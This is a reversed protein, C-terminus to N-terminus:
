RFAPGTRGTYFQVVIDGAGGSVSAVVLGELASRNSAYYETAQLCQNEFAGETGDLRFAFPLNGVGQILAANATPPITLLNSLLVTSGGLGAEGTLEGPVPTNRSDFQSM